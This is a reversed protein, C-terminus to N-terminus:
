NKRQRMTESDVIRKADAWSGSGPRPGDGAFDRTPAAVAREGGERRGGSASAFSARTAARIQCLTAKPQQMGTVPDFGYTTLTNVSEGLVIPNPTLRSLSIARIFNRQSASRQM